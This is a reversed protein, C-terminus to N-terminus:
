PSARRLCFRTQAPPRSVVDSKLHNLVTVNDFECQLAPDPVSPNFGTDMDRLSRMRFYVNYASTGSHNREALLIRSRSPSPSFSMM